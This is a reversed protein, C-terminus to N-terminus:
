RPELTNNLGVTQNPSYIVVDEEIGTMETKDTRHITCFVTDEYTIGMRKTGPESMIINGARLEVIGEPTTIGVRGKLIMFYHPKKHERGIFAIGGPIMCQRCYMGELLYSRTPIDPQPLKALEVEARDIAELMTASM